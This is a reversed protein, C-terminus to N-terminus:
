RPEGLVIGTRRTEAARQGPEHGRAAVEEALRLLTLPSSGEANNNAIVYAPRGRATTALVLDALAAIEPPQPAAGVARGGAGDAPLEGPAFLGLQEGEDTM